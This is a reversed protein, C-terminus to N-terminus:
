FSALINELYKALWEPPLNKRDIGENAQEDAEQNKERPIHIFSYAYKKSSLIRKIETFLPKLKGNKVKYIGNMQKVLLESDAFFQVEEFHYNTLSAETIKIAALLAIYEAVNNTTNKILYGHKLFPKKRDAQKFVIGIGSLGPNGRSAGDSFVKILRHEELKPSLFQEETPSVPIVVKPESVQPTPQGFLSLQKAEFNKKNNLSKM